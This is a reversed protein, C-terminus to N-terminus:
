TAANLHELFELFLLALFFLGLDILINGRRFILWLLILIAYPILALHIEAIKLKVQLIFDPEVLLHIGNVNNLELIKLIFFHFWDGLLLRKWLNQAHCEVLIM